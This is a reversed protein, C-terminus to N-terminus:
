VYMNSKGLNFCSTPLPLGCIRYYLITTITALYSTVLGTLSLSTLTSLAESSFTNFLSLVATFALTFM